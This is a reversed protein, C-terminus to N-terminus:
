LLGLLLLIGILVVVVGAARLLIRGYKWSGFLGFVIGAMHLFGSGTVFGGTIGAGTHAYSFMPVLLLVALLVSKNKDFFNTQSM